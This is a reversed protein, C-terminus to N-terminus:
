SIIACLLNELSSITEEDRIYDGVFKYSRSICSYRNKMKQSSSMSKFIKFMFIFFVDRAFLGFCSNKPFSRYMPM